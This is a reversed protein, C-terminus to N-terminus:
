DPGRIDFPQFWSGLYYQNLERIKVILFGALAVWAGLTQRVFALHATRRQEPVHSGQFFASKNRAM